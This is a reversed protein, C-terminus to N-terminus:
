ISFLQAFNFIAAMLIFIFIISYNNKVIARSVYPFLEDELKKSLGYQKLFDSGKTAEEKSVEKTILPIIEKEMEPNKEIMRESIPGLTNIYEAKLNDHHVKLCISTIILFLTMLFLLIATSKKLESNIFYRRM